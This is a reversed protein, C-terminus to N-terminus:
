AHEHGQVLGRVKTILMDLAFPKGIVEMGPALQGDLLPGAYGTIFLVPLGPVLERAADAVQRGNLGGPLGVDTVLVDACTGSHLLHLVAPGDAAELVAYGAERLREAATSRVGEDDDVLLVTASAAGAKEPDAEPVAQGEDARGPEHRPLYLRVTTGRGLASDLRVVGNSQRVFGYLQSLGLGTGQGVPKTTFFPEFARAKTAEDMGTGTDSVAIEVHDGPRAGIQGAVDAEELRVNRAGISITGGSPMADRANIALNLLVNELQGPDCLVTWVGDALDIRVTVGSGVTHRVLEEVGGILGDLEVARPESTQRRAFTLLRRALAAARAVGQRAAEAYRGAEAARGQEARRQMLELAGGIGQLMNNFDHAIGGAIQGLAEMRQAQRLQEEAQARELAEAHLADVAQALAATRADVRAELTANTGRLVNEAQKAGTQDEVAVVLSDAGGDLGPQVVWTEQAVRVSGDKHRHRVEARWRRGRRLAAEVAPWPKPFESHLLERALAGVAEASTYGFLREMGPTWVQVRGERDCVLTQSHSLMTMMRERERTAERLDEVAAHRATRDRMVKLYGVLSGGERLPTLQGSGWFRTGDRKVHWREDEAVGEASATRMEAEPVGAARDEPTFILAVHRRLVEAEVWGLVHRAGANWGTIRGERDTTIIAHETADELVAHHRGESAALAARLREIEAAPEGLDLSASAPAVAPPVGGAQLCDPDPM